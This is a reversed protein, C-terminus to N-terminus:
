LGEFPAISLAYALALYIFAMHSAMHQLMQCMLATFKKLFSLTSGLLGEDPHLPLLPPDGDSRRLTVIRGAEQGQPEKVEVSGRRRAGSIELVIKFGKKRHNAADGTGGLVATGGGENGSADWMRAEARAETEEEVEWILM